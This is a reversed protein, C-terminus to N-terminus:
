QLGKHSIYTQKKKKWNNKKGRQEKSQIIEISINKLQSVIEERMEM